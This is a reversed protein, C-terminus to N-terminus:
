GVKIVAYRWYSCGGVHLCIDLLIIARDPESSAESLKQLVFTLTDSANIPDEVAQEAVQTSSILTPSDTRPESRSDEM